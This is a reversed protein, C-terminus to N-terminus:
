AKKDNVVDSPIALMRTVADKARFRIEEPVRVEPELNKLSDIVDKLGTKKMDACVMKTDAPIFVKDPNKKSLPYIIGTETGIIFEKKNSKSAYDIM